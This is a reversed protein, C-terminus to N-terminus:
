RGEPLPLELVAECRDGRQRLRFGGGSRNAVRRVVRLGHGHRRRGSLRGPLDRARWRTAALRERKRNVVALRVAAGVRGVEVAVAGSGHDLGNSILNDLVQALQVEDVPLHPAGAEWKLSLERKELVARVRWREVASEVVRRLPAAAIRGPGEGGNIEGDLGGVVMFRDNYWAMYGGYRLDVPRLSPQTTGRTAPKSSRTTTPKTAPAAAKCESLLLGLM